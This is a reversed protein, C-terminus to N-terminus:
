KIHSLRCSDNYRYIRELRAKRDVILENICEHGVVGKVSDFNSLKYYKKIGDITSESKLFTGATGSSSRIHSWKLYTLDQKEKIIQSKM